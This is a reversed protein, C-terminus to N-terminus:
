IKYKKASVTRPKWKNGSHKGKCKTMNKYNSVSVSIIEIDRGDQCQREKDKGMCTSIEQNEM